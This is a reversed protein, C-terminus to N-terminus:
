ILGGQLALREFVSAVMTETIESAGAGASAIHVGGVNIVIRKADPGPSAYAGGPRASARAGVYASPNIPSATSRAAAPGLGIAVRTGLHAGASTALGAHERIGLSLGHATHAGIRATLRSPSKVELKNTLGSISGQAVESAAEAAKSKGQRVGGAFGDGAANGLAGFSAVRANLGVMTTMLNVARATWVTVIEIAKAMGMLAAEVVHLATGTDGFRQFERITPKLAIYTKLAGIEMQLFFHKLIPLVRGALSFVADFFSTIAWKLAQASPQGDDLVSILSRMGSTFPRPDVGDFLRSFKERAKALLTTMNGSLADLPAAGKDLLSAQLADGFRAADVSGAKLQNRLEAASVGMHAAVDNVNAGTTALAALGKDAIKLGHHTDIAEQIKRTLSEYAQAGTDGMLAQASATAQLQGRLEGLDTIGLAEYQKAWQALEARSEPLSSSLDNLMALTQAGAEPGGGLASFTTLLQERLESQELALNAGEVVLAGFSAAIATVAGIAAFVPGVVAGAESAFESLSSAASQLAKPMTELTRTLEFVQRRSSEVLSSYRRYGEVDGIGKARGLQASFSAYETKAKTLSATLGAISQSATHAPATMQDVLKVGYELLEV